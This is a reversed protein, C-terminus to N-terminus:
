HCVEQVKRYRGADTQVILGQKKWNKLMLLGLEDKKALIRARLPEMAEDNFKTAIYLCETKTLSYCPVERTGGNPQEVIRSTLRFNSGCTKVWASEMKRIAEMVHKHQKGTLEAIELSTMTQQQNIIQIEMKNSNIKALLLNSDKRM